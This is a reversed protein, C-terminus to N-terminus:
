GLVIPAVKNLIAIRRIVVLDASPNLTQATTNPNLVPTDDMAVTPNNPDSQNGTRLDKNTLAGIADMVARGSANTIAGFVTFGGNQTDLQASTNPGGNDQENFFFQNTASNVPDPFEPPNAVGLKAMAITGRTNSIGPENQIPANHPVIGLTNNTNVKFGGGQIVFPSNDGLHASRHIINGDWVTSNAYVEFNGVTIPTVDRFLKVNIAGLSTNMRAVPNIGRDKKSQCYFDGAPEGNGSVTGGGNFEGDLKEGLSNKIIRASLKISYTTNAGLNQGKITIRKAAANWRVPAIIHVDDATGFKLDPGVTNIQASRSTVTSAVVAQDLTITVEGRNDSIVSIVRPAALLWRSELPEVSCNSPRLSSGSSRM